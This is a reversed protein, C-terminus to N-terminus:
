NQFGSYLNFYINFVYISWIYSDIIIEMIYFKIIIFGNYNIIYFM